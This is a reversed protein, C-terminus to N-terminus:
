RSWEPRDHGTWKPPRKDNAWKTKLTEKYADFINMNKYPTCNAFPTQEGDPLLKIGDAFMLHMNTSKHVKGTRKYKEDSLAIFHKFLWSYNSKNERAWISCPHNIHTTKYVDMATNHFRLATSLLQATELIMKNLRLDDLAEACVKPDPDTVFINM